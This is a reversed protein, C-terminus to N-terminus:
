KQFSPAAPFGKLEYLQRVEDNIKRSEELQRAVPVYLFFYWLLFGALFFVLATVFSAFWIRRWSIERSLFGDKDM